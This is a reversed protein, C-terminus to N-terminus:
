ASPRVKEFADEIAAMMEEADQKALCGFHKMWPKAEIRNAIEIQVREGDRLDVPSEPRFVGNEYIAQITKM